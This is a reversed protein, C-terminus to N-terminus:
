QPANNSISKIGYTKNLWLYWMVFVVVYITATFLYKHSFYMFRPFYISVGFLMVVRLLNTIHIILVGIPIFWILKKSPSGFSLLFASFIIIVNLGNCGEYVSLIIDEEQLVDISPRGSNDRVSTNAGLVKLAWVSQEAVKRTVPDPQPYYHNIFLGYLVNLIFYLVLFKVLFLITPKFEKISFSM